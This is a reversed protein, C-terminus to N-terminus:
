SREEGRLEALSAALAEAVTQPTAPLREHPPAARTAAEAAASSATQRTEGTSFSLQLLLYPVLVDLSPYDFLLSARLSLRLEREWYTKMEVAQLSSMGLSVLPTRPEIDSIDLCLRRAIQERMSAMLLAVRQEPRGTRLRGLLRAATADLGAECEDNVMANERMAGADM